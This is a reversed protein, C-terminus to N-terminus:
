INKERQREVLGACVNTLYWGVFSCSGSEREGGKRENASMWESSYVCERDTERDREWDGECVGDQKRM